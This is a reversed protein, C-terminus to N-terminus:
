HRPRRVRCRRRLRRRGRRRDARTRRRARRGGGRDHQRQLVDNRALDIREAARDHRDPRDLAAIAVVHDGVFDLHAPRQPRVVRRYPVRELFADSSRRRRRLQRDRAVRVYADHPPVRGDDVVGRERLPKRAYTRSCLVIRTSRGCGVIPPSSKAYKAFRRGPSSTRRPTRPSAAPATCGACLESKRISSRANGIPM